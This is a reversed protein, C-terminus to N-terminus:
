IYKKWVTYESYHRDWEEWRSGCEEQGQYVLLCRSFWLLILYSFSLCVMIYCFLWILFLVLYFAYPVWASASTCRQLFGVSFCLVLFWLKYAFSKYSSFFFTRVNHSLLLGWLYCQTQQTPWRRTATPSVQLPKHGWQSELFCIKMRLHNDTTTLKQTLLPPMYWSREAIPCWRFSVCLGQVRHRLRQSNMHLCDQQILFAKIGQPGGDERIRMRKGCFIERFWLEELISDSLIIVVLRRM